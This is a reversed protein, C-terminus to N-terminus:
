RDRAPVFSTSGCEPCKVDLRKIDAAYQHGCRYCRVPQLQAKRTM